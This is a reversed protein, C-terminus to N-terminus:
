TKHPQKKHRRVDIGFKKVRHWLSRESIGLAKAAEVQVGDAYALAQEILQREFVAVMAPLPLDEEGREVKDFAPFPLPRGRRVWFPTEEVLARVLSLVLYRERPPWGRSAGYRLFRRCILVVADVLERSHRRM